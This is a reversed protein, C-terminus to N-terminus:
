PQEDSDTDPRQNEIIVDIKTDITQVIDKLVAVEDKV